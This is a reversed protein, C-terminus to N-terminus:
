GDRPAQTTLESITQTVEDFWAIRSPYSWATRSMARASAVAKASSARPDSVLHVGVGIEAAWQTERNDLEDPDRGTSLAFPRALRSQLTRALDLLRAEDRCDPWLLLFGDEGIRGMQAQDMAARRLRGACVFLAHNAAARGHLKELAYLNGISIVIVGMPSPRARHARFAQGVMHGTEAHTRMRTVPDYSPGHAMIENLEILYSYRRWLVMSMIALYATAALATMAHVPWSAPREHNAIWSLGALAVLMCSVAALAFWAPRDGSLARRGCAVVGALALLCALASGALLAVPAPVLWGAIAVAAGLLALGATVQRWAITGPRLGLMRLLLFALLSSCVIAVHAMVRRMPGPEDLPLWGLFAVAFLASLLASLAINLSVLRLSRRWGMAAGILMLVVMGFFAGWFGAAVPDM